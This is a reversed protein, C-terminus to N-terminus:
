YLTDLNKITNAVIGLNFLEESKVLLTNNEKKKEFMRMTNVYYSINTCHKPLKLVVNAYRSDCKIKLVM